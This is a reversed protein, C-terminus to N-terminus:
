GRAGGKLRARQRELMAQIHANGPSPAPLPSTATKVAVSETGGEEHDNRDDDDGDGDRRAQWFGKGYSVLLETRAKIAKSGSKFVLGRRSDALPRGSPAPVEYEEFFVNPRQAVGRFDNVFRAENGCHTSDIGLPTPEANPPYTHVLATQEDRYAESPGWVRLDYDSSEDSEEETHLLGLYPLIVTRPPIQKKAFLGRQGYAPHNKDTIQRIETLDQSRLVAASYPDSADLPAQCFISRHLESISSTPKCHNSLYTLDQPWGLPPAANSHVGTNSEPM